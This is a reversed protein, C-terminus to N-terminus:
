NDVYFFSRLNQLERPELLSDLMEKGGGVALVARSFHFHWVDARSEDTYDESKDTSAATGGESGGTSVHGGMNSTSMSADKEQDYDTSGTCEGTLGLVKRLVLADVLLLGLFHWQSSSFAPNARRIEARALLTQKAQHYHRGEAASFLASSTPSSSSSSSSTHPHETAFLHSLDVSKEAQQVARYLLTALSHAVNQTTTSLVQRSDNPDMYNSRGEGGDGDGDGDGDGGSGGPGQSEAQLLEEGNMWSIVECGFLDELTTWMYLFYNQSLISNMEAKIDLHIFM